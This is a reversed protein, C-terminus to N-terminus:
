ETRLRYAYFLDSAAEKVECRSDSVTPTCPLKEWTGSVPDSSREVWATVSGTWSLVIMSDSGPAIDLKPLVPAPADRIVINATDRMLLTNAGAGAGSATLKVQFTRNTESRDNRLLDISITKYGEGPKFTVTGGSGKYDRGEIATGEETAYDVTTSQRFDGTRVLNILVPGNEEAVIESLEFDVFAPTAYDM